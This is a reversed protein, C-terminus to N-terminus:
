RGEVSNPFIVDLPVDLVRAIAKFTKTSGTKGTREIQSLMSPTIGALAALQRGNLGRWLRIARVANEGEAINDVLAKPLPPAEGGNHSSLRATAARELTRFQSEPLVVLRERTGPHRIFQLNLKMGALAVQQKVPRSPRCRFHLEDL